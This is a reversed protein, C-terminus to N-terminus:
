KYHKIVSGRRASYQRGSGRRAATDTYHVTKNTTNLEDDEHSTTGPTDLCVARLLQEARACLETHESAAAGATEATSRIQM